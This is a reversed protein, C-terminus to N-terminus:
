NVRLGYEQLLQNDPGYLRVWYSGTSLGKSVRAMPKGEASGIVPGSWRAEGAATVLEIRFGARGDLQRSDINLDLPANAPASPPATESGRMSSLQITAPVQRVGPEWLFFAGLVLMAAAALGPLLRRYSPIAGPVARQSIAEPLVAKMSGIFADLNTLAHQCVECVLLHNELAPIQDEPLRKLAYAELM